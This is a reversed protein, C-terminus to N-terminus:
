PQTPPSAPAFMQRRHEAQAASLEAPDIRGNGDRDVTGFAPANGLNRMQYGQQSREAIRKARAQYFEPETIVGNGDLDFDSFAPMNM